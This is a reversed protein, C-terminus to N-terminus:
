APPCHVGLRALAAETSAANEHLVTQWGQIEAAATNRIKDDILVCEAPLVQLRQCAIDLISPEPKRAGALASIVVADFLGALPAEQQLRHELLPTANSVLALAFCPKLRWALAVMEADLQEGHFSDRYLAFDDPLRDAVPAGVEAWYEDMSIIGTSMAEWAEGSYLRLYLAGEKWGLMRDFEAMRAQVTRDRVLVGGFDFAVARIM